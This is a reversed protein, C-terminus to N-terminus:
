APFGATLDALSWDADAQELQDVLYSGTAVGVVKIGAGHGAKVDRPTDGV